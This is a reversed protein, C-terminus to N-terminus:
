DEDINRGAKTCITKKLYAEAKEKEYQIKKNICEYDIQDIEDLKEQYNFITIEREDVELKDFLTHIRDDNLLDSNRTKQIRYFPKNFILSFATGHFSGSLVVKAHLILSLFDQIQYKGAWQVGDKCIFYSKWSTYM